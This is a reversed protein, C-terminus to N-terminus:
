LGASDDVVPIEIIHHAELDTDPHAPNDEAFDLQNDGALSTAANDQFSDDLHADLAASGYGSPDSFPGGAPPFLGAELAHDAHGPEGASSDDPDPGPGAALSGSLGGHDDWPDNAVGADGPGADVLGTDGPGSGGNGPDGIAPDGLGADGFVAPAHVSAMAAHDGPAMPVENDFWQEADGHAWVNQPASQGSITAREDVITAGATYSFHDVVHHLQQVAYAHDDPDYGAGGYGAGHGGQGAAPGAPGTWPGSGGASYSREFSSANVTIPAYDLVVPMAADVDASCVNGLGHDALAREPNDLFAQVAERDGFLNMLFQVLDNALTPM